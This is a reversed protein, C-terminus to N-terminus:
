CSVCGTCVVKALNVRGLVGAGNAVGRDGGRPAEPLEASGAVLNACGGVAGGNATNGVGACGEQQQGCGNDLVVVGLNSTRGVGVGVAAVDEGASSSQRCEGVDDGADADDDGGGVEVVGGNLVAGGGAVTTQLRASTDADVDVAVNGELGGVDDEVASGGRGKAEGGLSESLSRAVYKKKPMPGTLQGSGKEQHILHAVKSNLTM